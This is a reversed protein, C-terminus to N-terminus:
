YISSSIKVDNIFEIPFGFFLRLLLNNNSTGRSEYKDNKGTGVKVEPTCLLNNLLNNKLEKRFLTLPQNRSRCTRDDELIFGETSREPLHSLFIDIDISLRPLRKCKTRGLIILDFFSRFIPRSLM